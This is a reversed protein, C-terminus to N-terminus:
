RVDPIGYHWIARLKQPVLSVLSIWRGLPFRGFERQIRRREAITTERLRWASRLAAIHVDRLILMDRRILSLGIAEVLMWLVQAGVAPPLILAPCFVLLVCLRNRESLFRRRVTTRLKGQVAKGGGFSYGVVHDYGSKDLVQVRAGSNWTALCLFVDEAISGFWEPFGGIRVWLPKPIWLCAGMVTVVRRSDKALVPIPMLSCDMGCGRDLLQRSGADYQPVSLIGRFGRSAENLMSQLAGARLYADNNLLLIYQGAAEQALRNNSVCFGVNVESRIIRIDPYHQEVISLSDDTSADDHILIEVSTSCAQNIVSDVCRLLVDRGNYNAICVSIEPRNITSM